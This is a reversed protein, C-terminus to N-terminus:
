CGNSWNFRLGELHGKGYFERWEINELRTQAVELYEKNELKGENLSKLYENTKLSPLISFKQSASMRESGGSVLETYRVLDSLQKNQNEM